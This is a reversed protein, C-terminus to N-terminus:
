AAGVDALRTAGAGAPSGHAAKDMADKWGFGDTSEFEGGERMGITVGPGVQQVTYKAGSENGEKALDPNTDPPMNPDMISINIVEKRADSDFIGDTEKLTAWRNTAVAKSRADASETFSLAKNASTTLAPRDETKAAESNAASRKAVSKKAM